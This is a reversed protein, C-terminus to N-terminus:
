KGKSLLLDTEHFMHLSMDNVTRVARAQAKRENLCAYVTYFLSVGFGLTLMVVAQSHLDGAFLLILPVFLRGAMGAVLLAAMAVGHQSFGDSLLSFETLLAINKAPMAIGSVGVLGITHVSLPFEGIHLEGAFLTDIGHSGGDVSNAFMLLTVYACIQLFSLLLLALRAVPSDFRNKCLLLGVSVLLAVFNIVVTLDAHHISRVRAFTQGMAVFGHALFNLLLLTSLGIYRAKTSSHLSVISNSGAISVMMFATSAIDEFAYFLTLATSVTLIIMGYSFITRLDGFWSQWLPLLLFAAVESLCLAGMVTLRQHQKTVQIAHALAVSRGAAGIGFLLLALLHLVTQSIGADSHESVWL